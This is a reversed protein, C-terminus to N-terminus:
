SSLVKHKHPTLTAYVSLEPERPSLARPSHAHLFVYESKNFRTIWRIFHFYISITHSWNGYRWFSNVVQSIVFCIYYYIPVEKYWDPALPSNGVKEKGVLPWLLFGKPCVSIEFLSALYFLIIFHLVSRVRIHGDVSFVSLWTWGLWEILNLILDYVVYYYYLISLFVSARGFGDFSSTPSYGVPLPTYHIYLGTPEMPRHTVTRLQLPITIFSLRLSLNNPEGRLVGM